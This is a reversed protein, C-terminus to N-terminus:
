SPLVNFPRCNKEAQKVSEQFWTTNMKQISAFLSMTQAQCTGPQLAVGIALAFRRNERTCILAAGIDGVCLAPSTCIHSPHNWKNNITACIKPDVITVVRQRLVNRPRVSNTYNGWEAVICETGTPVKINQYMAIPEVFENLQFPDNLHIIAYSDITNDNGTHYPDMKCIARTQVTVEAKSLDHVGAVARV